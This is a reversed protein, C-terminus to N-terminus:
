FGICPNDLLINDMNLPDSSGINNSVILISFIKLSKYMHISFTTTAVQFKNVSHTSIKPFPSSIKGLSLVVEKQM